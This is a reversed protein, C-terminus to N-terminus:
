FPVFKSWDFGPKGGKKKLCQRSPNFRKVMPAFDSFYKNNDIPTMQICKLGPCCDTDDDCANSATVCKACHIMNCKTTGCCDDNEFCMAGIKKCNPEETKTTPQQTTPAETEYNQTTPAPTEAKETSSECPNKSGSSSQDDASPTTSPKDDSKETNAESSTDQEQTQTTEESQKPQSTSSSQPEEKSPENKEDNSDDTVKEVTQPSTQVVADTTNEKDTLDSQTTSNQAAVFVLSLFLVLAFVQFKM